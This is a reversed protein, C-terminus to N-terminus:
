DKHSANSLHPRPPFSRRVQLLLSFPVCSIFTENSVMSRLFTPCSPQTYNNGFGRDFASPLSTTTASSGPSSTVAGEAATSTSASDTNAPDDRRHLAPWPAIDHDLIMRGNMFQGNLAQSSSGPHEAAEIPIYLVSLIMTMFLLSQTLSLPLHNMSLRRRGARPRKRPTTITVAHHVASRKCKTPRSLSSHDTSSVNNFHDQVYRNM